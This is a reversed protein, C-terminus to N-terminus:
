HRLMVIAMWRTEVIPGTRGIGPIMMITMPMTTVLLPMQIARGATVQEPVLAVPGAVQKAWGTM